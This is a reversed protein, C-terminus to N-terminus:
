NPSEWRSLIAEADTIFKEVKGVHPTVGQARLRILEAKSRVVDERLDDMVEGISKAMTGTRPGRLQVGRRYPFKHLLPLARFLRSVPIVVGALANTTAM